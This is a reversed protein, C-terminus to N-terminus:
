VTREINAYMQYNENNLFFLWKAFELRVKEFIVNKFLILM